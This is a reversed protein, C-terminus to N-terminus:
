RNPPTGRRRQLRRDSGGARPDAWNSRVLRPKESQIKNRQDETLAGFVAIRLDANAATMTTMSSIMREKRAQLDSAGKALAEFFASQAERSEAGAEDRRALFVTLADDATKRQAKTLGFEEINEADNWWANEKLFEPDNRRERMQAAAEMRQKRREEMRQRREESSEKRAEPEQRASATTSGFVSLLTLVILMTVLSPRGASRPRSRPAPNPDLISHM